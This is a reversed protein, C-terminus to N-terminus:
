MGKLIYKPIFQLDQYIENNLGVVKFTEINFKLIKTYIM